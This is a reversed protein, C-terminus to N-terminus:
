WCLFDAKKLYFDGFSLNAFVSIIRVKTALLVDCSM